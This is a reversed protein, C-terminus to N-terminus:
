VCRALEATVSNGLNPSLTITHYHAIEILLRGKNTLQAADFCQAPVSVPYYTRVSTYKDRRLLWIWILAPRGLFVLTVNVRGPGMPKDFGHLLRQEQLM